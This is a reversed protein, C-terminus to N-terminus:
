DLIDIYDLIDLIDLLILRRAVRYKSYYVIVYVRINIYSAISVLVRHVNQRAQSSWIQVQALAHKQVQAVRKNNASTICIIDPLMIHM